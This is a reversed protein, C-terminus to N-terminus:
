AWARRWCHCREPSEALARAVSRGKGPICSARAFNWRPAPGRDDGDLKTKFGAQSSAIAPVRVHREQSPNTERLYQQTRLIALSPWEHGSRIRPPANSCGVAPMSTGNKRPLSRECMVRLRRASHMSSSPRTCRIPADYHRTTSSLVRVGIRGHLMCLHCPRLAKRVRYQLRM